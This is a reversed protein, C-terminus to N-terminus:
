RKNKACLVNLEYRERILEEIEDIIHQTAYNTLVNELAGIAM